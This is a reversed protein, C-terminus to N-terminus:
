VDLPISYRKPLRIEVALVVPPSTGDAPVSHGAPTSPEAAV